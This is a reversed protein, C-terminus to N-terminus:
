LYQEWGETNSNFILICSDPYLEIFFGYIGAPIKKGNITAETTVSITTCEDAGASWPSLVESGFGLVSTGFYAIDIGWIKGERGKVGPANWKIQIDTVGITRGANCPHNATCPFRLAQAYSPISVLNIFMLLAISINKM